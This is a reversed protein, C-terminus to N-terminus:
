QLWSWAGNVCIGAHLITERSDLHVLTLLADTPRLSGSAAFRACAAPYASLPALTTLVGADGVALTPLRDSVAMGRASLANKAAFILKASVLASPHFAEVLWTSNALDPFRSSASAAIGNTLAQLERLVAEDGESRVGPALLREACLMVSREVSDGSPPATTVQGPRRASAAHDDLWTCDLRRSEAKSHRLGPAPDDRFLFLLSYLGIM